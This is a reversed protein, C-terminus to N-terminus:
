KRGRNRAAGKGIAHRIVQPVAATRAAFFIVYLLALHFFFKYNGYRRVQYAAAALPVWLLLVPIPWFSGCGCFALVATVVAAIISLLFLVHLLMPKDLRGNSFLRMGGLAHWKRKAFFEGMTKANGLHIVRVKPDDIIGFGQSRLRNGFDTDEDTIMEEDFGKVAHFAESRVILNGSNIYEAQIAGRNKSSLWAAEVWTPQEPIDYISGTAAVGADGLTSIAAKRWGPCILCDCDIFALLGGAAAEAGRNRLASITLKPFELCRTKAYSRAIALTKDTSGNDVVIIEDDSGLERTINDLCSKIYKEGNLVPIIFSIALNDESNKM